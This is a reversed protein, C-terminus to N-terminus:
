CLETCIHVEFLLSSMYTTYFMGLFSLTQIVMPSSFFYTKKYINCISFRFKVKNCFFHCTKLHLAWFLFSFGGGCEGNQFLFFYSKLFASNSKSILFEFCLSIRLWSKYTIESFILLIHILQSFHNWLQLIEKFYELYLRKNKKWDILSTCVEKLSPTIKNRDSNSSNLLFISASRSPIM